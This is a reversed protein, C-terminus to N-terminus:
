LEYSEEERSLIKERSFLEERSMIRMCDFLDRYKICELAYVNELEPFKEVDEPEVSILVIVAEEDKFPQYRDGDRHEVVLNKFYDMLEQKIM